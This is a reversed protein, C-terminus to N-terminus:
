VQLLKQNSNWILNAMKHWVFVGHPSSLEPQLYFSLTIFFYRNPKSVITTPARPYERRYIAVEFSANKRECLTQIV